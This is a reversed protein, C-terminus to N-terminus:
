AGEPEARASLVETLAPEAHAFYAKAVLEAMDNLAAEAEDLLRSLAPRRGDADAEGLSQPDAIRLDTLLKLAIRHEPNRLPTPRPLEALVAEAAAVQYALSRPNSEDLVLLDIAPTAEPTTLYRARYAFFSDCILLGAYLASTEDAGGEAALARFLQVIHLGRQLRRGLEIFRWAFNRTMNEHCAGAFASLDRVAREVPGALALAGAPAVDAKWIPAAHLAVVDRWGDRSLHARARHANWYVAEIAARASEPVDADLALRAIRARLAAHTPAREGAAEAAGLRLDLLRHLMAPEADRRPADIMREIVVKLVRLTFEAREGYRGLWFLDDAVRSLLERGTRRLHATRRRSSLRAVAGIEQTPAADDVVWVDKAVGDWPLGDVTSGDAAFAIAGPMCRFGEPGAVVFLRMAFAAPAFGAGDHRPTTATEVPRRATFRWGERALLRGQAAPDLGALPAPPRRGPRTVAASECVRWGQPDDLYLARAAPDGLWLHPAEPLIPDEGTLRRALGTSFPAVARGDLVGGGIANAFSLRGMRAARLVGPPAMAGGGPAYLPDIGASPAGRLVVDVRQLGELTKVHAEGDRVALDGPEVLTMGLYRALYADSFYGPDAPGPTVYAVRGETVIEAEIAAQMLDFHSSLRRVGAEVFLDPAAQGLAVRVALAWGEGEPRDVGDELAVWRGDALRAVDVAYRLLRRRPPRDWHQAARVYGPAGYVVSPPLVGASILDQRGYVDNLAAEMMRARQEAGASLLAWEDRSLLVPAGDFRSAGGEGRVDRFVDYSLGADELLRHADGAVARWGEPGLRRYADVVPRWVPRVAGQADVMQDVVGARQRYTLAADEPSRATAPTV